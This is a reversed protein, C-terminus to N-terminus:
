MRGTWSRERRFKGGIAEGVLTDGLTGSFITALDGLKAVAVRWVECDFGISVGGDARFLAKGV